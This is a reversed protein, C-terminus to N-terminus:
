VASRKAGRPTLYITTKYAPPTHHVALIWELYHHDRVRIPPAIEPCRSESVWHQSEYYSYAPKKDTPILTGMTDIECHLTKNGWFPVCTKYTVRNRSTPIHSMAMKLAHGHKKRWVILFQPNWPCLQEKIHQAGDHSLMSNANPYISWLGTVTSTNGYHWSWSAADWSALNCIYSLVNQIQVASFMQNRFYLIMLSFSGWTQLRWNLQCMLIEWYYKVPVSHYKLAGNFFPKSTGRTCSININLHASIDYVFILLNWGESWLVVM